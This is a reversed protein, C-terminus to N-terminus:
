VWSEVEHWLYHKKVHFYNADIFSVKGQIYYIYIIEDDRYDVDVCIGFRYNSKVSLLFRM